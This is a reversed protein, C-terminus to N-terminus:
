LFPFIVTPIRRAVVYLDIPPLNYTHAPWSIEFKGCRKQFFLTPYAIIIPVRVKEVFM